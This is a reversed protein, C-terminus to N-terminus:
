SGFNGVGTALREAIQPVGGSYTLYGEPQVIEFGSPYRM